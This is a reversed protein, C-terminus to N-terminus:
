RIIDNPSHKKTVQITEVFIIFFAITQIRADHDSLHTNDMARTSYGPITGFSSFTSVIIPLKGINRNGSVSNAVDQRSPANVISIVTREERVRDQMARYEPRNLWKRM